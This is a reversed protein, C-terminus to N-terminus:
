PLKICGVKTFQCICHNPVEEDEDDSSPVDSLNDVAAEEDEGEKEAAEADDGTGDQMVVSAATM